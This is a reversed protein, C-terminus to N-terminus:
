NKWAKKNALSFLSALMGKPVSVSEYSSGPIFWEAYSDIISNLYANISLGHNAAYEQITSYSRENIRITM